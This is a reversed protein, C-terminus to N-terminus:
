SPQETVTYKAAWGVDSGGSVAVSIDYPDKSFTGTSGLETTGGLGSAVFGAGELQSTIEDFASGDDVAILVSWVQSGESGLSVGSLVEGDILPIEAPFDAPVTAGDVGAEADGSGADAGSSSDGLTPISPACGALVPTTLLLAALLAAASLRIRSDSM